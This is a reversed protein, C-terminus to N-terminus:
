HSMAYTLVNMGVKYAVLGYQAPYRSDNIWEWADGLDCNLTLFVMLRGEKNEVGMYHPTVGGKEFEAIQAKSYGLERLVEVSSGGLREAHRRLGGPTKSFKVPVKIHRIAGEPQMIRGPM